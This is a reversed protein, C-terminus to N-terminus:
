IVIQSFAPDHTDRKETRDYGRLGMHYQLSLEAGGDSDLFHSSSLIFPNCTPLYYMGYSILGITQPLISNRSNPRIKNNTLLWHWNM